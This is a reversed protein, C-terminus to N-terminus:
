ALSVMNNPALNPPPDFGAAGEYWTFWPVATFNTTKWIQRKILTNNM